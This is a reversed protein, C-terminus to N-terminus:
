TTVAFGSAQWRDLIEFSRRNYVKSDRMEQKLQAMEASIRATETDRRVREAVSVVEEGRHTNIMYNDSPVYDLGNAASVYSPGSAFGSSSALGVTPRMKDEEARRALEAATESETMSSGKIADRISQQFDSTIPTWFDYNVAAAAKTKSAAGAAAGSVISIAGSLGNLATIADRGTETLPDIADIMAYLEEVSDPVKVNFRTFEKTIEELAMAAKQEESGYKKLLETKAALGAENQAFVDAAEGLLRVVEEASTASQITEMLASDLGEVHDVFQDMFLNIQESLGAGGIGKGLFTGMSGPDANENLGSLTARSMDVRGGLIRVAATAADSVKRFQNIVETAASQDERRAVGTVNLGSEFPDVGFTYEPKAGPTPGVLFGANSRVKGDDNNMIAALAAAGMAAWGWGPIAGIIGTITGGIGAAAGAGSAAVPGVFSASGPVGALLSSGVASAGASFLSNGAGQVVSQGASRGVSAGRGISITSITGGGGIDFLNMAKLALWEAAVRKAANVFADEIKEAVSGGNNLTDEFIGTLAEHTRQWAEAAQEAAKDNAEALLEADSEAAIAAANFDYIQATLTAISVIYKDAEAKALGQAQASAKTVAEFIAAARGTMQLAAFENQLSVTSDKLSDRTKQQAKRLDDAADAADEMAQVHADHAEAAVKVNDGYKIVVGALGGVKKNTLEAAVGATSFSAALDDTESGADSMAEQYKRAAAAAAEASDVLKGNEDILMGLSEILEDNTLMGTGFMIKDIAIFSAAAAQTIARLAPDLEQGISIALSQAANKAELYDGSLNDMNLSAQETAVSTGRLNENLSAAVDSQALLATAATFAEQGFLDMLEINDLNRSKLEQLGGVLGVVSPMLDADATSELKLMVQRLATGADAGQRGAAALAQIGAVTEEFDIGLSNAASGANRMAETVNAVEATGLQASAALANVVRSADSAPLQFQNLASGLAAAAGPLDIGTAEALLVAEQTVAALAKANELLDPKASAILKFGEVAQSASLSTTKGIMRAQDSYFELDKGTAGTIASLNSLAKNFDATTTIVSVLASKAAQFGLYSGVLTKLNSTAWAFAGSMEDTSKAAKKAEEGLRKTSDEAVKGTKALDDLTKDAKAASTADVEIQLSAKTTM